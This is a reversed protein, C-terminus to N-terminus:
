QTSEPHWCKALGKVKTLIIVHLADPRLDMKDYSELLVMTHLMISKSENWAEAVEKSQSRSCPEEDASQLYNLGPPAPPIGPAHRPHKEPTFKSGQSCYNAEQARQLSKPRPLGAAESQDVSDVDLTQERNRM